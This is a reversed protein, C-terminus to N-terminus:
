STTNSSRGLRAAVNHWVVADQVAGVVLDRTFPKVLYGQVGKSMTVSLPIADDASALLMAVAPHARQIQEVLWTGDRGPMDKDITAVAIPREALVRLAAEADAAENITLGVASLWRKLLDRTQSDDDVILIESM